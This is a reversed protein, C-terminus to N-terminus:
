LYFPRPPAPSRLLSADPAVPEGQRVVEPHRRLYGSPFTTVQQCGCRVCSAEASPPPVRVGHLTWFENDHGHRDTETLVIFDEEWVHWCRRCEFPVTRNETDM